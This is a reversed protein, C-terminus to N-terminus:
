AARSRRHAARLTDELVQAMEAAARNWQFCRQVRERAARGMAEARGPTRLVSDAAAALARADRPPVLLGASGDTGVV